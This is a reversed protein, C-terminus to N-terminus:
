DDHAIGGLRYRLLFVFLIGAMAPILFSAPGCIFLAVLTIALGMIGCKASKSRCLDLFLVVFMYIAKFFNKNNSSLGVERKVRIKM